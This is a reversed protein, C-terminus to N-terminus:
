LRLLAGLGLGLSIAQASSAYDGMGPTLCYTALLSSTLAFRKSLSYDLGVGGVASLDHPEDNVERGSEHSYRLNYAVRLGLAPWLALTDKAFRFPFKGVLTTTLYEIRYDGDQEEEGDVFRIYNGINTAYGATLRLYELDVVASAGVADYHDVLDVGRSDYFMMLETYDLTMGVQAQPQSQAHAVEASLLVSFVALLCFSKM